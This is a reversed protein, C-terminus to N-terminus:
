EKPIDFYFNTGKESTNVGYKFKHLELINKVISLGLGTGHTVRKYKKDVKYYKDWIYKLDEDNIGNGTDIVEFRIFDNYDKINISVTKDEGTYNIANNILNYIVQELRKKDAKIVYKKDTKFKIKYGDRDKLVEYRTLISKVLDNLNVISIELKMTDSQAKSLDLIDEVLLNLRDTEKIIVDLNSNRKEENSYTLDKVMEANAKILTLPTKLDHSVNALLERRLSETKALERSTNNLTKALDNIEEISSEKFKVDYNGKAMKKSEETMKTIPNSFINALFYAILLSIVLVVVAAYIFEKQIVTLISGMIKLPTSIFIVTGDELKEGYILLEENFRYNYATFSTSKNKGSIFKNKAKKVQNNDLLMCSNSNTSSYIVSDDNLIEICVNNKYSIMNLTTYDSKTNKYVRIVERSMDQMDSKKFYRYYSNLFIIQLFWFVCLILLSFVILVSFLYGRFKYKKM